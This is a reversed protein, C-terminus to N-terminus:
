KPSWCRAESRAPPTRLAAGPPAESPRSAILRRPPARGRGGARGTGAAPEAPERCGILAAGAVRPPCRLGAGSRGAARGAGRGAARRWRGAARARPTQNPSPLPVEAATPAHSAPLPAARRQPARRASPVLQLHPLFDCRLRIPREPSTRRHVEEAALVVLRYSVNGSLTTPNEDKITIKM